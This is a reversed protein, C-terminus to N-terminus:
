GNEVAKSASEARTLRDIEAAILAGAKMLERIRNGPKWANIEWPWMRSPITGEHNRWKVGMAYCAAADSLEGDVHQDDHHASWNEGHLQREREKVILWAGGEQVTAAARLASAIAKELPEGCGKGYLIERAQEDYKDMM